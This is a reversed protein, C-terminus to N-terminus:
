AVLLLPVVYPFSIEKTVAALKLTGIKNVLTREVMVVLEATEPPVIEESPPEVMVDRPTQQLVEVPGVIANVVFVDSPVPKPANVLLM